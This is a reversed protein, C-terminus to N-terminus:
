HGMEHEVYQKFQNLIAQWGARQMEPPNQGEAEFDQIVEIGGETPVLNLKVLRGDDLTYELRHHPEVCTYTAGLVFSFSGDKAAMECEMRGGVHVDLQASPCHWDLSAFNWKTVHDGQTLAEWVISDRSQIFARVSIM